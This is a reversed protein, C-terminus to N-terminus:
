GSCSTFPGAVGPAPPAGEHTMLGCYVGKNKGKIKIVVRDPVTAVDGGTYKGRMIPFEQLNDSAKCESLLKVTPDRYGYRHPYNQAGLQKGDDVLDLAQEAATKIQAATFTQERPHKAGCKVSKTPLGTIQNKQAAPAPVSAVMGAIAFPVFLQSLYM